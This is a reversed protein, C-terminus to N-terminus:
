NVTRLSFFKVLLKVNLLVVIGNTLNVLPFPSIAVLALFTKAAPDTAADTMTYNIDSDYSMPNGVVRRNERSITRSVARSLGTTQGIMKLKTHFGSEFADYALARSTISLTPQADCEKIGFVVPIAPENACIEFSITYRCVLAQSYIAFHQAALSFPDLDTSSFTHLTNTNFEKIVFTSAGQLLFDSYFECDVFMEAPQVASSTSPYRMLPEVVRPPDGNVQDRKAKKKKIMNRQAM